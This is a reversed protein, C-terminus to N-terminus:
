FLNKLSDSTVIVDCKTFYGTDGPDKNLCLLDVRFVRLLCGASVFFIFYCFTLLVVSVGVQLIRILFASIKEIRSIFRPKFALLIWLLMLIFIFVFNYKHHFFLRFLFSIALALSIVCVFRTNKQKIFSYFFRLNINSPTSKM